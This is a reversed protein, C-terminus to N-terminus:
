RALLEDIGLALSREDIIGIHTDIIEGGPAVFYTLPVGVGGLGAPVARDQDFYHEFDIGYEAIFQKAGEQSDQVDIGIFRIDSGFEDVAAALLPAESRCPGCWSAWVNVVMPLESEAMLASFAEPDTAPLDPIGAVDVPSGPSCGTVAVLLFALMVRRM